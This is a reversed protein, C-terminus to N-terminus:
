GNRHSCENLLRCSRTTNFIGCSCLAGHLGLSAGPHRRSQKVWDIMKKALNFSIM